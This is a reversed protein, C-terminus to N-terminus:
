RRRGDARGIWFPDQPRQPRRRTQRNPRAPDYFATHVFEMDDPDDPTFTWTTENNRTEVDGVTGTITRGNVNIASRIREAARQWRDRMDAFFGAMGEQWAQLQLNLSQMGRRLRVRHPLLYALGADVFWQEHAASPVVARSHVYDGGPGTIEHWVLRGVCDNVVSAHIDLTLPQGDPSYTQHSYEANANADVALQIIAQYQSLGRGVRVTLTPLEPGELEMWIDDPELQPLDLRWWRAPTIVGGPSYASSGGGFEEWSVSQQQFLGIGPFDPIDYIEYGGNLDGLTLRAWLRCYNCTCGTIPNGIIRDMTAPMPGIFESGPCLIDSDDHDYRYGDLIASTAYEPEEGREYADNARRQYERRMEELRTTIALGHWARGCHWCPHDATAARREQGTEGATLQEDILADIDDIINNTSM